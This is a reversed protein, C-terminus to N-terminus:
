PSTGSTTQKPATAHRAAFARIRAAGTRLDAEEGAFSIRVFSAMNPGFAFGPVIAIREEQYLKQAFDRGSFGTSSVDAFLFRGCQPPAFAPGPGGCWAAAV